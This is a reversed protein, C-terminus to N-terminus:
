KRLKPDLADRLGDGLLQLSLMTISIFFAPILLQYPHIQMVSTGLNALQGWSTMPPKVGIGIFSLFAESFIAAPIAMTLSVIIVGLTNPILHKFILRFSSAGLSIASIIFEENKLQMIQGRVLRAMELWGTIAIAIVIPIIGAGMIVMILIVFILYPISIMVDIFRMIIMDIRGGYFGAIGGVVVGIVTQFFAAVIGIALSVRAGVWVRAWMDRGLSDTGFWHEASPPQNTFSLNNVNYSYPTLMPGIIAMISLGILFFLSTMAIKNAKLRRWVDQWYSMSPRVIEESKQENLGIHRFKDKSIEM